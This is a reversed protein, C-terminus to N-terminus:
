TSCKKIRAGLLFFKVVFPLFNAFFLIGRFLSFTPPTPNKQFINFLVAIENTQSKILFNKLALNDRKSKRCIKAINKFTKLSFPRLNKFHRVFNENKKTFNLM